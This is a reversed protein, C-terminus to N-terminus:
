RKSKEKLDLKSLYQENIQALFTSLFDKGRNQYFYMLGLYGFTMGINRQLQLVIELAIFTKLFNIIENLYVEITRGHEEFEVMPGKQGKKVKTIIYPRDRYKRM